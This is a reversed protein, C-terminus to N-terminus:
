KKRREGFNPLLRTARPTRDERGHVQHGAKRRDGEFARAGHRQHARHAVHEAEKVIREAHHHPELAVEAVHHRQCVPVRRPHRQEARLV